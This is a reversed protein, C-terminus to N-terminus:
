RLRLEAGGDAEPPGSQRARDLYPKARDIETQLATVTTAMNDLAKLKFSDIEDMTSYINQFATELKDLSITSSAAQENVRASQDHLMSSTGVILNETTSNLATIQDLVLKQDGLAQAVIVATRLASVTTTTARDVGKILELNNKRVLDLALYGQVGVALQTSLDQVKQRVYFLMDQKLASAREPDSTELRAIRESLKADLQQGMYIYQRLRGNVDWLRQQEGIIAANDRRLQDQGSYLSEIIKDIHSQSSRYKDFYSGIRNGAGFPLVGLLKKPSFLDGQRGPDLDECTHRLDVLSKSVESAQSIGGHDISAIPRELLTNSVAASARVDEDGMTRIDDVKKRFDVGHVDLSTVSDLYQDVLADLREVDPPAVALATQAQTPAVPAVAPPAVLVLEGTAAPATADAAASEAEAATAPQDTVNVSRRDSRAAKRLM